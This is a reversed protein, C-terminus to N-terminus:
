RVAKKAFNERSEANNVLRSYKDGSSDSWGGLSILVKADPNTQKVKDLVRRYFRDDLDSKPGSPTMTLSEGDLKAFAYVVHSCLSADINEPLFKGDGSRICRILYCISRRPHKRPPLPNKHHSAPYIVSWNRTMTYIHSNISSRNRSHHNISVLGYGIHLIWKRSHNVPLSQM